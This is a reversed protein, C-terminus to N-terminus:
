GKKIKKPTSSPGSKISSNHAKRTNIQDDLYAQKIDNARAVQALQGEQIKLKELDINYDKDKYKGYYDQNQENQYNQYAYDAAGGVAGWIWQNDDDTFVDSITELMSQATSKDESSAIFENDWWEGVVESGQQDWYNGAM